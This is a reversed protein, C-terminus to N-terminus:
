LTDPTWHEALGCEGTKLIEVFCELARLADGELRGEFSEDPSQHWNPNGEGDHNVLVDTYNQADQLESYADRARMINDAIAARILKKGQFRNRVALKNLM